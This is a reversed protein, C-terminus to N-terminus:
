RIRKKLATLASDEIGLLTLLPLEIENQILLFRLFKNEILTIPMPFSSSFDEKLLGCFSNGSFRSSAGSEHTIETM